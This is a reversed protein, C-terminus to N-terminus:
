PAKAERVQTLGSELDIETRMYIELPVPQSWLQGEIRFGLVNHADGKSAEASVKLTHPLIRPEFRLIVERLVRALETLDYQSAPRGALPPMGYNIVSGAMMADGEFDLSSQTANFLWNLDRLVNERLRALTAARNERPESLKGPEDDLLRDLLSPYLRDRSLAEAM